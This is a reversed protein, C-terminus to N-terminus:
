FSYKKVNAETLRLTLLLFDQGYTRLALGVEALIGPVEKRVYEFLAEESEELAAQMNVMHAHLMGKSIRGVEKLLWRELAMQIEKGVNESEKILESTIQTTGHIRKPQVKRSGLVLRMEDLPEKPLIEKGVDSSILLRRYARKGHFDMPALYGKAELAKLHSRFEEQLMLSRSASLNLYRQYLADETEIIAWGFSRMIDLELPTPRETEGGREPM